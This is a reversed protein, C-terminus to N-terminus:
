ELDDPDTCLSVKVLTCYKICWWVLVATSLAGSRLIKLDPIYVVKNAQFAAYVDVCVYSLSLLQQLRYV